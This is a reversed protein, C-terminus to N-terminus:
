QQSQLPSVNASDAKGRGLTMSVKRNPKHGSQLSHSMGLQVKEESDSKLQPQPLLDSDCELQLDIDVQRRLYLQAFAQIRTHLQSDTEIRRKQEPTSAHIVLKLRNNTLWCSGGLLAGAGLSNTEEKSSTLRSRCDDDLTRKKLPYSTVSIQLGFYDELIQKLLHASVTRQGMVGVYPALHDAPLLPYNFVGTLACLQEGLTRLNERQQFSRRQRNEKLWVGDEFRCTIHYRTLCRYSNLLVRQNFVEYFNQLGANDDGVRLQHAKDQYGYPLVGNIGTLSPLTTTLTVTKQAYHIHTMEAKTHRYGPDSVLALAVPSRGASNLILRIAQAFQWQEPQAQLKRLLNNRSSNTALM